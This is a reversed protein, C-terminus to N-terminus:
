RGAREGELRAETVVECKHRGSRDGGEGGKRRATRLLGCVTLMSPPPPTLAVRAFIPSELLQVLKDIQTLFNVTVHMEGFSCVLLYAHEHAMSLLCLSLTAVANYCWCYYLELFLSQADPADLGSKLLTRLPMLESSTLLIM